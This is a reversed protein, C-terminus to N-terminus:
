PERVEIANLKRAKKRGKRAGSEGSCPAGGEPMRQPAGLVEYSKLAKRFSLRRRM